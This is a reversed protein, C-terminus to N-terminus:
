HVVKEVALKAQEKAKSCYIGVETYNVNTQAIKGNVGHV